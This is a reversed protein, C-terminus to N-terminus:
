VYNTVDFAYGQEQDGSITIIDIPAGTSDPRNTFTIENAPTNDNDAGDGSPNSTTGNGEGWTTDSVGYIAIRQDDTSGSQTKADVRLIATGITSASTLDFKLYAERTEDPANQTFLTTAGGFNTDAFSGDRVFADDQVSFTAFLRRNELAEIASAAAFRLASAGSIGRRRHHAPFGSRSM